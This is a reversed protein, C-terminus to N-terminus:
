GILHDFSCGVEPKPEYGVHRRRAGIDAKLPSASTGEQAQWTQFHRLRSMPSAADIPHLVGGVRSWLPGISGVAQSTASEADAQQAGRRSRFGNRAMRRIRTTARRSHSHGLGRGVAQIKPVM